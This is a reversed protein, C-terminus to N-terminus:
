RMAQKRAMPAAAKRWTPADAAARGAWRRWRPRSWTAASLTVVLDDTVAVSARGANIAVLAAVGSSLRQKM